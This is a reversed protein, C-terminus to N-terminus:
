LDQRHGPYRLAVLDHHAGIGLVSPESLVVSTSMRLAILQGRHQWEKKTGVGSVIGRAAVQASTM